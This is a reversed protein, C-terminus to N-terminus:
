SFVKSYECDTYNLDDRFDIFVAHRLKKDDTFEMANVLCPRMIYENNPKTIAEKIEDAFNSIYGIIYISQNEEDWCGLELSGAWGYFYPKKVPILPAGYVYDKHMHGFVKDGTKENEWYQWTEIESGSYLKNPEKYRGTLFLDLPKAIEKKIKLTKKSTRKGPEVVSGMRTIVSGEEGDELWKMTHDWLEQGVYYKACKIYKNEKLRPQIEYELIKIREEIPMNLLSRGDYAWVDFIYYYLPNYEQRALAKDVKCNLIKAVDNSHKTIDNFFCLEGILVTNKLKMLTKSIHPVHEIKDSYTHTVTSITRTLMSATNYDSDNVFRNYHGDKKLTGIYRCSKIMSETEEQINGKYTKAFDWYREPKITSFDIGDIM